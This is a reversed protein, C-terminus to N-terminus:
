MPDEKKSAVVGTNSLMDVIARDKVVYNAGHDKEVLRLFWMDELARDISTRSMRVLPKLDESREAGEILHKMIQVRISPVSDLCCRQVIRITTDEDSKLDLCARAVLMLQNTVRTPIESTSVMDDVERTYRDRSVSSRAKVMARASGLINDIIGQPIILNKDLTVEKFFKIAASKLAIKMETQRIVNLVSAEQLMRESYDTSRAKVSLFREGLAADYSKIKEIIPTAGGLLGFKGDWKISGNGTRKVFHGDYADRLTAFIVARAEAPMETFTSMDKIILMKNDKLLHLLSLEGEKYGSALANQTLTSVMVTDPVDALSQLLESKGCGPKGIIMAWVPLGDYKNALYIAYLTRLLDPDHDLYLWQRYIREVENFDM